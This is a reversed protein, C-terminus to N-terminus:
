LGRVGRDEPATTATTNTGRGLRGSAAPNGVGKGMTYTYHTSLYFPCLYIVCGLLFLTRRPHRPIQVRGRPRQTASTRIWDHVQTMTMEMYVSSAYEAKRM